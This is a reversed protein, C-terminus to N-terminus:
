QSCSRILPPKLSESDQITHWQHPMDLQPHSGHKFGPSGLWALGWRPGVATSPRMLSKTQNCTRALAPLSSRTQDPRTQDPAFWPLITQKRLLARSNNWGYGCDPTSCPLHNSKAETMAVFPFVFAWYPLRNRFLPRCFSLVRWRCLLHDWFGEPFNTLCDLGSPPLM